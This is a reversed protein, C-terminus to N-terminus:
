RRERLSEDLTGVLPYIFYSMVTRQGIMIEGLLSSGPRILVEDSRKELRMTDLKVRAIYYSGINRM